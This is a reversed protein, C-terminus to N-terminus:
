FLNRLNATNEITRDEPLNMLTQIGAAIKRKEAPDTVNEKVIAVLAGVFQVAQQRSIFEQKTTLLKLQSESLKRKREMLDGIERWNERDGKGKSILRLIDELLQGVRETDNARRAAKFDQATKALEDWIAGSENADVRQLVDSIRAETLGIDDNLSLVEPDERSKDYAELLRKPLHKSYKGTKMVPSAMGRLSHGGHVFCPLWTDNKEPHKIRPNSCYREQGCDPCHTMDIEEKFFRRKCKKCKYSKCGCMPTKGGGFGELYRYEHPKPPM